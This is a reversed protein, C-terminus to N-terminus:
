PAAGGEVVPETAGALEAPHAYLWGAFLLEVVVLVAAIGVYPRGIPLLLASLLGVAVAVGPLLLAGAVDMWRGRPYPPTAVYGLLALGSAGALLEHGLGVGAAIAAYSLGAAIPLASLTRGREGLVLPIAGGIALTGAVVAVGAYPGAVDGLGLAIGLAALAAFAVLDPRYATRGPPPVAATM